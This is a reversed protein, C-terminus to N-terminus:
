HIKASPIKLRNPWVRCKRRPRADVEDILNLLFGRDRGDGIQNASLNEFTPLDTEEGLSDSLPV